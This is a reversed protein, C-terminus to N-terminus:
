YVFACTCFGAALLTVAYQTFITSLSVVPIYYLYGITVTIVITATTIITYQLYCM